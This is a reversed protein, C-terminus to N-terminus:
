HPVALQPLPAPPPPPVVTPASLPASAGFSAIAQNLLATSAGGVGTAAPGIALGVDAAQGTAGDAYTFQFRSLIQNGQDFSGDLTGTTSISAIGLQALSAVRGGTGDPGPIWVALQGYAPDNADIEGDHDTDDAALAALSSVLQKGSTIPAGSPDIALFGEGSSIWGVAHPTGTGALDFTVGNHVWSSTGVTGGALNLVIPDFPSGNTAGTDVINGSVIAM